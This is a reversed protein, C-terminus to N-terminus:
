NRAPMWDSQSIFNGRSYYHRWFEKEIGMKRVMADLENHAAERDYSTGKPHECKISYDRVVLKNDNYCYWAALIEIGWGLRNTWLDMPGVKRAIPACVSWITSDTAPVKKLGDGIDELLSIDYTWPTFHHDPAYLGANEGFKEYFATMKEVLSEVSPIDVDANTIFLVDGSFIKLAENWQGSYFINPFRRIRNTTKFPPDKDSHCNLLYADCGHDMFADFLARAQPYHEYSFVFYQIKM